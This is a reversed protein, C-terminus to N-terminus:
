AYSHLVIKEYNEKYLCVVYTSYLFFTYDFFRGINKFDRKELSNFYPGSEIEKGTYHFRYWFQTWKLRFFMRGDVVFQQLVIKCYM